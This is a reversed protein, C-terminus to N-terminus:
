NRERTTGKKLIQNMYESVLGFEVEFTKLKFLYVNNSIKTGDILNVFMVFTPGSIMMHSITAMMTILTPM